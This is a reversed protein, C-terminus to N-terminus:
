LNIVEEIFKAYDRPAERKLTHRWAIVNSFPDLQPDAATIYMPYQVGGTQTVVAGSRDRLNRVQMAINMQDKAILYLGGASGPMMMGTHESTLAYDVNGSTDSTLTWYEFPFHFKIVTDMRM